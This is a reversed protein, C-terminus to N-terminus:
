VKEKKTIRYDWVKAGTITSSKLMNQAWKVQQTPKSIMEDGIKVTYYPLLIYVYGLENPKLRLLRGFRQIAKTDSGYFSELVGHRLNDINVGRDIKDCVGIYKSDGQLFNKYTLERKKKPIKGNYANEEGCIKISQSTRKSFIVIKGEQTKLHTLLKRAMIESGRCNLLIDSRKKIITSIKYEVSKLRAEMNDYTILGKQFNSSIVSKEIILKKFTNEAYIYAATESQYFHKDVGNKKYEVKIQKPDKSLEYKLFVFQLSNLLGSSQAEDVTKEYITPMNEEFWEKKDETIFGTIGLTKFDSFVNIVNSLELTDAIFDVEDMVVLSNEPLGLYNSNQKYAKQYTEMIVMDDYYEGMNFNEFEKKWNTDRLITSNVLIVVKVPVLRKIIKMIIFSKGTGTASVISSAKLPTDFFAQVAELQMKDRIDAM